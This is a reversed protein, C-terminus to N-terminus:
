SIQLPLKFQSATFPLGQYLSPQAWTMLRDIGLSFARVLVSSFTTPHRRHPWM